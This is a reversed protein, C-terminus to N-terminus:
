NRVFPKRAIGEASIFQLMYLGPICEAVSIVNPSNYYTRLLKGQADLLQISEFTQGYETADINIFDETPNPYIKVSASNDLVERTAVKRPSFRYVMGDPILGVLSVPTEPLEEDDILEPNLPDGDLYQGAELGTGFLGISPALVVSPGEGDDFCLAIDDISNPGYRFEIIDGDEHFWVQFNVFDTSGSNALRSEYFGANKWELKFIYSGPNGVLQYSVPSISGLTPEELAMDYARDVLDAGYPIIISIFIDEITFSVLNSLFNDNLFWISDQKDGFLRMTFGIPIQTDLEDWTSDKNISIPNDLDIYPENLVTFDYQQAQVVFFTCSLSLTLLTFIRKM